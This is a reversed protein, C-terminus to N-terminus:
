AGSSTFNQAFSLTIPSILGAKVAVCFISDLTSFFESVAIAALFLCFHTLKPDYADVGNAARIADVVASKHVTEGKCVHLEVTFLKRLNSEVIRICKLFQDICCLFSKLFLSSLGM